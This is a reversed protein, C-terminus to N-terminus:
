PCASGFFVRGIGTLLPNGFYRHLNPMAGPKIGGQFRNGMVFEYGERLKVLFKELDTFDYSDDADGMIIYKGRAADFGGMLASGYGKQDVVIVRAGAAAAIAASGDTSGNDAVLVEGSIGHQEITSRAKHICKALTEAENLCPMVVSLELPATNDDVHVQLVPHLRKVADDYPGRSSYSLWLSKWSLHRGFGIPWPGGRM